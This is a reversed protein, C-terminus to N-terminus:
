TVNLQETILAWNNEYKEIDSISYRCDLSESNRPRIFNHKKMWAKYTTVCVDRLQLKTLIFFRDPREKNLDLAVCVYILDLNPINKLLTLKQVKNEFRVNFWTDARGPWTTHSTAKVQIAISHGKQDVALIDLDPINGAFPTALLNQRGLEACVLHEGIQKVLSNKRGNAM